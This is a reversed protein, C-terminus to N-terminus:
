IGRASSRAAVEPLRRRGYTLRELGNGSKDNFGAAERDYDCRL